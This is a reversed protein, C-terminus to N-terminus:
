SQITIRIIMMWDVSFSILPNTEAPGRQTTINNLVTVGELGVTKKEAARM